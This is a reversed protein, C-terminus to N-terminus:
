GRGAFRRSLPLLFWLGVVLALAVAAIANATGQEFLLESVLWITSVMGIALAV